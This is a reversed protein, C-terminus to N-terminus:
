GESRLDFSLSSETEHNPLHYYDGAKGIRGAKWMRWATSRINNADVAKDSMATVALTIAAIPKPGDDLSAIILDPMTTGNTQAAVNSVARVTQPAGGAMRDLVRLATELESREIELADLQQRLREGKSSVSALRGRIESHFDNAM